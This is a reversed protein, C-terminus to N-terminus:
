RQRKNLFNVALLVCYSVLLLALSLYWAEQYRLAEVYEYIAISAVRTEGPISGGVMLIVGFEGMTHAFALIAAAVLGSSTNPLVVRFFASVPSCGLVAASELLRPDLKEFSSKLPQMAYPLSHAMSALVIGAFTFVLPAGVMNMYGQGFFSRPGMAMLFFFGLVTPPLVMPLGALAEIFLRGRFRMHVLCYSLPTAIVLLLLTSVFALKASLYLPTLDM